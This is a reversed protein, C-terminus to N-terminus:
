VKLLGDQDKEDAQAGEHGEEEEGPPGSAVLEAVFPAKQLGGSQRRRYAYVAAGVALFAAAGGAAAGITASSGAALTRCSLSLSADTSPPHTAADARAMGADDTAEATRSMEATADYSGVCRTPEPGYRVLGMVRMNSVSFTSTDLDGNAGCNGGSPVWGVWQTSHFQVGLTSMKNVVEAKAAGSPYPNKVDVNRGNISVIMNGDTGFAAKVHFKGNIPLQGWCGGQDCDGNHNAWQHWTTQALCNGNNEIIDMEMCHPHSTSDQIDCYELSGASPSSTYFNNNIGTHAYTTDMDFEVYGGLLNFTQRSGLGGAGTM